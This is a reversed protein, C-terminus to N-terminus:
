NGGGKNLNLLPLIGKVDEDVVIKRWMKPVVRNMTELYLRKRTVDPSKAYERYQAVFRASDGAAENTRELFYGEAQQITQQAVGEAAPIERNYESQAENILREKEQQAENVENFSPKVPDPPNVDQLVVQEVRIGNEYQDCLGQLDQM